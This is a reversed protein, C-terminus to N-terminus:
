IISLAGPAHRAHFAWEFKRLSKAKTDKVEWLQAPVGSLWCGGRPGSQQTSDRAAVKRTDKPTLTHTDSSGSQCTGGRRM